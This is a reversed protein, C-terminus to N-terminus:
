RQGTILRRVFRAADYMEAFVPAQQFWSSHIGSRTSRQWGLNPEAILTVCGPRAQPFMTLVGDLHM